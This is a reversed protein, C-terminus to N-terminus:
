CPHCLTGCTGNMYPLPNARWLAAPLWPMLATVFPGSQHRPHEYGLFMSLGM